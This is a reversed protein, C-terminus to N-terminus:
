SEDMSFIKGLSEHDQFIGTFFEAAAKMDRQLAEGLKKGTEIKLMIEEV